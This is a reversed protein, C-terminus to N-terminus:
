VWLIACKYPWMLVGIYLIIKMIINVHYYAFHIYSLIMWINECVSNFFLLEIISWQLIWRRCSFCINTQLEMVRRSSPYSYVFVVLVSHMTVDIISIDVKNKQCQAVKASGGSMTQKRNDQPISHLCFLSPQINKDFFFSLLLGCIM